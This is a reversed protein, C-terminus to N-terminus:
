EKVEWVFTGWNDFGDWEATPPIYETAFFANGTVPDTTAWTYDGLRPSNFPCCFKISSFEINAAAAATATCEGERRPLKSSVSSSSPTREREQDFAVVTTLM